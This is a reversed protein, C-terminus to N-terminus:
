GVCRFQTGSRNGAESFVQFENRVNNIDEKNGSPYINSLMGTLMGVVSKNGFGMQPGPSGKIPGVYKRGMTLILVYRM